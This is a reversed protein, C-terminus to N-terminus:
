AKRIRAVREKVYPDTVAAALFSMPTRHARKEKAYLRGKREYANPHKERFRMADKKARVPPGAREETVSLAKAPFVYYHIATRAKRNYEFGEDLVDFGARRAQAVIREHAKLLKTAVVDDKGELPKSELLFLRTPVGFSGNRKAYEDKVRTPTLPEVTFFKLAPKELFSAAAERFRDFKEQALAAAANRTPQIPDVLILPGLRKAKDLAFLPDKHHKEPDLVVPARWSRVANLLPIFGGYRFVLLDIVHGSFGNIYSEAGYVKAAKCFQKALRIDAALRPRKKLRDLVYAVHLPSADTVNVADAAKAISLVPVIEFLLGDRKAQFYDRSGHIRETGEPLAGELLDSLEDSRAKYVRNNFRVFVDVDHDGKLFTGKATSGGVMARALINRRALEKNLQNVFKSAAAVHEDDPTIRRLAKDLIRRLGAQDVAPGSRIGKGKATRVM